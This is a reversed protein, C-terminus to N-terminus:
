SVSSGLIWRWDRWGLSYRARGRWKGNTTDFDEVFAFGVAVRDAWKLMSRRMASDTMFWDNADTLYEWDIIRYRGQQFNANNNATDLKGQSNVIEWASAELAVPVVLEDSVISIIEAQDGRFQRMQVRAAEASVASLATTALNDFGSSTSAGSTTTHSNSCLAVGETHNYFFTDVSFANNFTRSGHNERTRAYSTALSRPRESFVMYMDDEILELEVQFGNVFTKHTLTVDYGQNITNYPITGSLETWDPLTGFQSLKVSDKRPGMPIMDYLDGIRSRTQNLTDHFIKAFDATLVDPNNSAINTAM